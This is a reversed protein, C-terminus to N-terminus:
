AHSVVAPEAVGAGSQTAEHRALWWVQGLFSHALLLGAVALLLLAASLPLLGAAVVALAVGQVAAVAKRWRSPPVPRRLWPVAVAAAGLVYRALGIALVWGGVTALVDVSLVLILVADVEMDFRAGVATVSGTRRAVRGDVADLLLAAAATSALPLPPAGGPAATVVLAAVAGVLTTRLLTVRNAAGLAVAGSRRLARVLLTSAVGVVALGAAWGIPEVPTAASLVMLLGLEGALAAAVDRHVSRM